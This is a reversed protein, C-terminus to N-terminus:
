AVLDQLSAGRVLAPLDPQDASAQRALAQRLPDVASGVSLALRKFPTLLPNSNSFARNIGDMALATAVGDFRRWRQYADLQAGDALSLGLRRSECLTEVLAAIDKLGLNFGQGALPNVRRVADGVLAVRDSVLRDALKLRLPYALPDRLVKMPGVLHGFRHNLEAELEPRSLQATALGADHSRFWALNGRNETLPLVAFPGEDQFWQRAAGHHPWDLQLTVAVVAQDYSWGTTHIGSLERIASGVGDAGVVLDAVLKTGDELTVSAGGRDTEFATVTHPAYVKISQCEQVRDRIAQNLLDVEIMAGLAEGPAGDPLDDVGFFSAAAPLIGNSDHAEMSMLPEARPHLKQGVGAANLVRWGGRVIAFARSDPQFPLSPDRADVLAVDFGLEALLIALVGGSSGGGVILIESKESRTTPM